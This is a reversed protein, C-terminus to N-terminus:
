EAKATRIRAIFAKFDSRSIIKKQALELEELAAQMDERACARGTRHLMEMVAEVLVSLEVGDENDDAKEVDKSDPDATTATSPLDFSASSSAATASVKAIVEVKHIPLKALVEELEEDSVDKLTTGLVSLQASCAQAEAKVEEIHTKVDDLDEEMFREELSKRSRKETRQTLDKLHRVIHSDQFSKLGLIHDREEKSLFELMAERTTACPRLFLLIHNPVDPDLSLSLWERLQKRLLEPPGFWRMWRAACERELEELTLSDIDTKALSRDDEESKALENDLVYRLRATLWTRPLFLREVRSPTNNTIDALDRVVYGPLKRLSLPADEEFYEVLERIGAEDVPGGQMICRFVPISKSDVKFSEHLSIRAVMHEFVRRLVVGKQLNEMIKKRRRDESTTFTSPMLNPFMAVAVPLLLEGGPVIVFISFPVLRLLDQTTTELLQRERRTLIQGAAVRNKLRWAVRTNVMLLRCGHYLHLAQDWLWAVLGSQRKQRKKSSKEAGHSAVMPAAVQDSYSRIAAAVYAQSGCRFSSFSQKWAASVLISPQNRARPPSNRHHLCAEKATSRALLEM